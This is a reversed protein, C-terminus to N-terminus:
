GATKLVHISRAVKPAVRIYGKVQLQRLREQMPCPSKLGAIRVLDKYSPSYGNDAIYRVIADLTERQAKTLETNELSHEMGVVQTVTRRNVLSLVVKNKRGLKRLLDHVTSISKGSVNALEQVSPSRGNAAIFQIILDLFHQQVSTLTNDTM